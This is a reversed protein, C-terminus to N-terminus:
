KGEHRRLYDQLFSMAAAFEVDIRSMLSPASELLGAKLDRDLVSLLSMLRRAGLNAASGKLAHAFAHM